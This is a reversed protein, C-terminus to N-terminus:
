PIIPHANAGMSGCHPRGPAHMFMQESAATDSTCRVLSSYPAMTAHAQADGPLLIPVVLPATYAGYKALLERRDILKEPKDAGSKPKSM